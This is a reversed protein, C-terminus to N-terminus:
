EEEPAALRELTKLGYIVDPGDAAILKMGLIHEMHAVYKLRTKRSAKGFNNHALFDMCIFHLNNSKVDSNSIREAADLAEDVMEAQETYLMFRRPHMDEDSLDPVEVGHDRDKMAVDVAM